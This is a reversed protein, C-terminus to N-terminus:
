VYSQFIDRHRQTPAVPQMAVDSITFINGQMDIGQIKSRRCTFHDSVTPLQQQHFAATQRWTQSRPFIKRLAQAHCVDHCANTHVTQPSTFGIFQARAPSPRLVAALALVASLIYAKKM